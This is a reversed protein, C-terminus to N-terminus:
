GDTESGHDIHRQRMQLGPMERCPQRMTRSLAYPERPEGQERRGGRYFGPLFTVVAPFLITLLVHQSVGGVVLRDM